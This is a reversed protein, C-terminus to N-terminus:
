WPTAQDRVEGERLFRLMLFYLTKPIAPLVTLFPILLGAFIFVLSEVLSKAFMATGFAILFVGLYACFIANMVVIVGTFFIKLRFGYILYGARKLTGLAGYEELMAAPTVLAYHLFVFVFPAVTLLGVLIFRWAAKPGLLAMPSLLDFWYILYIGAAVLVIALLALLTWVLSLTVTRKLAKKYCDAFTVYIGKEVGWVAYCTAAYAYGLSSLYVIGLIWFLPEMFFAPLKPMGSVYWAGFDGFAFALTYFCFLPVSCISLFLLPAKQIVKFCLAVMDIFGVQQSDNEGM